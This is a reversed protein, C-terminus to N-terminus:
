REQGEAGADPAPVPVCLRVAEFVWRGKKQAAVAFLLHKLPRASGRATANSLSAEADLLVLGPGLTRTGTVEVKLTTDKMFGTHEELFLRTLASRGRATNGLANTYDGDEDFLDALGGADHRSWASSFSVALARIEEDGREEQAGLGGALLVFGVVVLARKM